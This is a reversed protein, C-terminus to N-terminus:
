SRHPPLGLQQAIELAPDPMPEEPMPEPEMPPTARFPPPPALEQMQKPAPMTQVPQHAELTLWQVRDAQDQLLDQLMVLRRRERVLRKM